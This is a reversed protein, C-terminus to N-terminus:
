GSMNNELLVSLKFYVYKQTCKYWYATDKYYFLNTILILSLSSFKGKGLDDPDAHM